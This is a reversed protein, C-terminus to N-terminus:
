QRMWTEFEPFYYYQKALFPNCTTGQLQDERESERMQGTRIYIGGEQSSHGGWM